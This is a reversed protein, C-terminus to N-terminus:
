CIILCLGVVCFVIEDVTMEARVADEPVPISQGKMPLQSLVQESTQKKDGANMSNEETGATDVPKGLVTWIPTEAYISAASPSIHSYEPHM